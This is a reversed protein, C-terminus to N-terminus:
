NKSISLKFIVSNQDDSDNDECLLFEIHEATQKYLAIGEFKHLNSIVQTNFVEMTTPNIQGVITGLIHGDDFASLTREATALFYIGDNIWIADTFSTKIDEIGPLLIETFEILYDDGMLNGTIKFIGNKGTGGNGRQFFYWVEDKLITGEINFDRDEIGAFNKLRDYFYDLNHEIVNEDELDFEFMINRKVTSGSGFIYLMNEFRVVSELDLKLDKPISEMIEANALPIRLLNGDTMSYQYLYNSSDCIIFLQNHEYILGSAAGIGEIVFLSEIKM